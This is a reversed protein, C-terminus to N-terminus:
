VREGIRGDVWMWGDVGVGKRRGACVVLLCVYGGEGGGLLGGEDCEIGELVVV